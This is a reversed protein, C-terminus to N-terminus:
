FLKVIVPTKGESKQYFSSVENLTYKFGSNNIRNEIKSILEKLKTNNM